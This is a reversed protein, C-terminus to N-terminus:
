TPSCVCLMVLENAKEKKELGRVGDRPRPRRATGPPTEPIRFGGPLDVISTGGKPVYLTYMFARVQSIFGHHHRGGNGWKYAGWLLTEEREQREWLKELFVEITPLGGGRPAIPRTRKSYIELSLSPSLSFSVQTGRIRARRRENHSFLTNIIPM